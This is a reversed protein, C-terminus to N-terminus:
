NIYKDNISYKKGEATEGVFTTTGDEEKIEKKVEMPLLTYRRMFVVYPMKEKKGDEYKIEVQQDEKWIGAPSKEVFDKVMNGWGTIVKGDIMRLSVIKGTEKKTKADFNALRQKSATAELREIKAMMEDLQSQKVTIEKEKETM